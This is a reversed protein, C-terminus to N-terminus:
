TNCRQLADQMQAMFTLEAESSPSNSGSSHSREEFGEDTLTATTSSTGTTTPTAAPSGSDQMDVEKSLTTAVGPQLTKGDQGDSHLSM